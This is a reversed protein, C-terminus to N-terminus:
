RQHAGLREDLRAEMRRLRKTRRRAVMVRWTGSAVFTANRWRTWAAVLEDAAAPDHDVPPFRLEDLPTREFTARDPHEADATLFTTIGVALLVGFALGGLVLVVRGM